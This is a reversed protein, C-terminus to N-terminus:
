TKDMWYTPLEYQTGSLDSLQPLATQEIVNSSSLYISLRKVGAVNASSARYRKPLMAATVPAISLDFAEPYEM